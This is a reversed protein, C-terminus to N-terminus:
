PGPALGAAGPLMLGAAGPLMLGAAGPLPLGVHTAAIVMGGAARHRDLITGLRDLAAADLGLSPEDLLWLPM